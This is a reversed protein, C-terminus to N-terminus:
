LLTLPEKERESTMHPSPPLLPTALNIRLQPVLQLHPTLQVVVAKRAPSLGGIGMSYSTVHAWPGTQVNQPLSFSHAGQHSDVCSEEPTRESALTAVVSDSSGWLSHNVGEM